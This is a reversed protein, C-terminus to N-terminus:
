CIICHIFGQDFYMYLVYYSILKVTYKVIANIVFLIILTTRDIVKVM